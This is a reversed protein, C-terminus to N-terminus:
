RERGASDALSALAMQRQASQLYPADWAQRELADQRLLGFISHRTLHKVVYSQQSFHSIAPLPQQGGRLYRGLGLYSYHFDPIVVM